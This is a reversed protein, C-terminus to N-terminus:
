SKEIYVINGQSRRKLIFKLGVLRKLFNAKSIPNLGDNACFHRYNMYLDQITLYNDQSAQYKCEYVFLSVSDSEREYQEKAQRATQSDTFNKQNLLRKLGELAWNFIGALESAIIKQALQKDQHVESITVSFPIILFRRFFAHTHEVSRPLENCNFMLKAYNKITFPKGYPSRAEVHEGSALQKFTSTELSNSIESAYNVLKNAIMARHYGRADTLNQMSYTSTNEEGLLSTVIEHFVSKGNAGSGYLMLVKELKLHGHPLFVYGLYEALIKQNDTDPLVYNLYELFLSANAKPNYEFPLQYALFDAKDFPRLANGNATIEFTGNKLNILIKSVNHKPEPQHALTLFQKYLNDRFKFYKAKFEDVGMKEAVIGLFSILDEEKLLSWYAGNFLYIFDHHKCIGWGYEQALALIKEVIIIQYHSNQLKENENINNKNCAHDRFNVAEVKGLLESLIQEHPIITNMSLQKRVEGISTIIMLDNFDTPNKDTNLGNFNPLIARSNIASAAENSKKEGINEVSYADNDGIIIIKNHPYKQKVLLAVKKLNGANFATFVGCHTATYITFATAYGEAIYITKTIQGILHFTGALSGNRLFRKEGNPTIFQLSCIVGDFNYIPIILRGNSARLNSPDIHKKSLYYHSQTEEASQWIKGARNKAEEWLKARVEIPKKNAAKALTAHNSWEEQTMESKQKSCWSKKIGRKWCGYAGSHIHNKHLIYWSNKKNRDREVTIRHLNGDALIEGHYILEDNEMALRFRKIIDMCTERQKKM